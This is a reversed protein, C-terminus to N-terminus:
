LSVTASRISRSALSPQIELASAALKRWPYWTRPADAASRITSFAIPTNPKGNATAGFKMTLPRSCRAAIATSSGDTTAPSLMAAARARLDPPNSATSSSDKSIPWTCMAPILSASAATSLSAAARSSNSPMQLSTWGRRTSRPPPACSISIRGSSNGPAAATIATWRRMSVQSAIPAFRTLEMHSATAGRIASSHPPSIASRM